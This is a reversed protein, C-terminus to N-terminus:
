CRAESQAQTNYVYVVNTIHPENNRTAKQHFSNFQNTALQGQLQEIRIQQAEIIYASCNTISNKLQRLFSIMKKLNQHMDALQDLAFDYGEIASRIAISEQESLKVLSTILQARREFLHIKKAAIKEEYSTIHDVNSEITRVYLYLPFRVCELRVVQKPNQYLCSNQIATLESTYVLQIGEFAKEAEECLTIAQGFEQEDTLSFFYDYAIAGLGIGAIAACGILVGNKTASDFGHAQHSSMLGLSLLFILCLAHLKM